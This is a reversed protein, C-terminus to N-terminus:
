KNELFDKKVESDFFWEKDIIDNPTLDLAMCIKLLTNMSYNNINGNVIKSMRDQGIPTVCMQEIRERLETQTMGRKLLIM